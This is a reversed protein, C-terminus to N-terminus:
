TDRRRQLVVIGDGDFVKAYDGSAVLRAVKPADMTHWYQPDTFADFVLYDQDSMAITAHPKMGLHGIIWGGTGITANAPLGALERDRLADAATPARYLAFGPDIPSHYRSIWLSALVAFVLAGQAAVRSRGYVRSAGDAFACLLYGSWTASYHSALSMTVTEHSLLVEALGPVAFLVYRSGLPLFALPVLIALLYEIRLPSWVGAVGATTAPSQWWEYYHLAFYHFHPDILPRVVGFYLAAMGVAIAAICVGCRRLPRDSRGMVAVVIGAFALSVFQDEKVLALLVASALAARWRRGDIAWVLAAALPPAFALEHFDGVAEASLPPYIAAVVAVFFAAGRPLRRAAIGWVFPITAATLLCQLVILGRAGDFLRVVPVTLYLIPSFHVLFHNVSGEETASFGSFAGNAIQTFTADDIGARFIAYHWLGLYTYIAALALM